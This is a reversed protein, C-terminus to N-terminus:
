RKAAGENRWWRLENSRQEAVAAIDPRGDGNLDGVIVQNAGPWNDKLLHMKWPAKPDGSNEFWAVRGPRFGTAVVDVDGDGDLDAAVAEFAGEFVDGIVHKRWAGDGGVEGRNEYWAIQHGEKPVVAYGVGGLAAVVDMDGDRDMDVPQGHVPQPVLDIV